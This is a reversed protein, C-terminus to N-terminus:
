GEVARYLFTVIQGRTCTNGPSFRDASTGNTINKEVAWLVASYYYGDRVDTFPNRSSGPAPQNEARWLFTVVQARTCGNDPGFHTKDLGNTIGNEVAWLVAKYYFAGEKVDTFPNDTRVPEPCGKARWLFTVVQSRTCTADPSFHTEDTGKTIQPTRGVAWLVPDYYFKDEKVDTFPNYRRQAPQYETEGNLVARDETFTYRCGATVPLDEYIEFGTYVGDKSHWLTVDMTGESDGEVWMTEAASYVGVKTERNEGLLVYSGELGAAVTQSGTSQVALPTGDAAEVHVTVPCSIQYGTLTDPESLIRRAKTLQNHLKAKYAQLQMTEAIRGYYDDGKFIDRDNIACDWAIAYDCALMQLSFYMELAEKLDTLKEYSGDKHYAVARSQVTMYLGESLLGACDMMGAYYGIEDINTLVEALPVGAKVGLVIGGIIPNKSLFEDHYFVDIITMGDTTFLQLVDNDAAHCLGLYDGAAAKKMEEGTENLSKICWSRETPSDAGVMEMMGATEDLISAFSTAADAQANYLVYQSAHRKLAEASTAYNSAFSVAPGAIKIGSTAIGGVKSDNLGDFLKKMIGASQGYWKGDNKALQALIKQNDDARCVDIIDLESFLDSTRSLVKEYVAEEYFEQGCSQNFLDALLINFPNEDTLKGNLVENVRKIFKWERNAYYATSNQYTKHLVSAAGGNPGGADDILSLLSLYQEYRTNERQETKIKYANRYQWWNLARPYPCGLEENMEWIEQFDLAPYSEEKLLNEPEVSGTQTDTNAMACACSDSSWYYNKLSPSSSRQGAVAGCRQGTVRGTNVCRELTCAYASGIIGGCMGTAESVPGANLCDRFVGGKQGQGVIGGTFNGAAITGINACERLTLRTNYGSTGLIGGIYTTGYAVGTGRKEPAESIMGQNLCAYIEVSGSSSVEGCIGGLDLRGCIDGRNCCHSVTSEGSVKGVIGGGEGSTYFPSIDEVVVVSSVCNEVTGLALEGAIGGFCVDVLEQDTSHIRISGAVHLNRVTGAVKYILGTCIDQNEVEVDLTYTLTHGNGDFEGTFMNGDFLPSFEEIEIDDMLIISAARHPGLEELDKATYVGIWGEPVEERQTIPQLFGKERIPDEEGDAAGAAPVLQILLVACLLLSIIRLSRKGPIRMFRFVETESDCKRYGPMRLGPFTGINQIDNYVSRFNIEMSKKMKADASVTKGPM